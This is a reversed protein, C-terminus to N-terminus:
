EGYYFGVEMNRWEKITIKPLGNILRFSNIHRITTASEDDWLRTFVQGDISAVLTNYSELYNIGDMEIVSAKGYFSKRNDMCPLEYKIM